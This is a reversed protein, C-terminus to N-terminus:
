GQYWRNWPRNYGYGRDFRRLWGWQRNLITDFNCRPNDVWRHLRRLGCSNSQIKWPISRGDGIDSEIRADVAAARM